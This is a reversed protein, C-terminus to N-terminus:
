GPGAVVGDAPHGFRGAVDDGAVLAAAHDDLVPTGPIVRHCAVEDAGPGVTGLGQGVVVVAYDDGVTRAVVPDAPAGGPAAVEDGAVDTIAHFDPVAAGAAVRHRPVEDAGLGVTGRGQGVGQVAHQDAGTGAPVGDAPRHDPGAVDEGPVASAHEDLIGARA